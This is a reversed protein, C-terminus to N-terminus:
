GIDVAGCKDAMWADFQVRVDGAVLIVWLSMTEGYETLRNFVVEASARLAQFDDGSAMAAIVGAKKRFIQGGIVAYPSGLEIAARLAQRADKSVVQPMLQEYSARDAVVVFSQFRSARCFADELFVTM